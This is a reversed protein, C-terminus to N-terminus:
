SRVALRRTRLAWGIAVLPAALGLWAVVDVAGDGLLGVILAVITAIALLIPIGFTGAVRRM